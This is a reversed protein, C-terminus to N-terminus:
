LVSYYFYAHEKDKLFAEYVEEVRAKKLKAILADAKRQSMGCINTHSIIEYVMEKKTM